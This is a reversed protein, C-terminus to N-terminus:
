MAQWLLCGDRVLLTPESKLVSRVMGSRVSLWSAALQLVVLVTLAAAGEAVAVDRSLLVTALTSGLAVTVVLDFANMKALTRKGSLRLTAVLFPYVVLGVVVVRWIQGWRDLMMGSM